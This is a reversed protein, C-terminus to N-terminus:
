AADEVADHIVTMGGFIDAFQSGSVPRGTANAIETALAEARAVTMGTLDDARLRAPDIFHTGLFGNIQEPIIGVRLTAPKM